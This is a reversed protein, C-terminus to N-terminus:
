LYLFLLNNEKKNDVLIETHKLINWYSIAKWVFSMQNSPLSKECSSKLRWWTTELAAFFIFVEETKDWVGLYFSTSSKLNIQMEAKRWPM